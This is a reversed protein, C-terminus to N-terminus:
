FINLYELLGTSLVGFTAGVLIAALGRRASVGDM